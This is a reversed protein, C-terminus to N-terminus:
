DQRFILNKIHNDADKEDWSYAGANVYPPEAESRTGDGAVSEVYTYINDEGIGVYPTKKFEVSQDKFLVNQGKGNHSASNIGAEQAAAPVYKDLHPNRDACVPTSPNSEDLVIWSKSGEGFFDSYPNQYCYSVLEGPLPMTPPGPGFDFHTKLDRSGPPLLSIDYVQAGEDGRCNFQKPTVRAFKVLYFFSSAITANGPVVIELDANRIIGFADDENQNFGGRYDAITGTSSWLSSPGGARPYDGGYYGGYVLMAGGIGKLNAGCVLQYALARATNLAPMLIGMLLAIIAIVVLLEILTFGKRKM